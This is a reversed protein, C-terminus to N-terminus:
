PIAAQKGVSDLALNLELVNVRPEGFLGLARGQVHADVLAHLEQEQVGRARAVRPVQGHANAPSIDPDLGSASGTIRDSPLPSPQGEALAAQSETQLSQQLKQSLPGLNSASSAQADYGNGASSPRGHFYRADEFLQGILRSGVVGDGRHILSGNAADPFLLQCLGTVLLPYLLGTIASLGVVAIFAARWLKM